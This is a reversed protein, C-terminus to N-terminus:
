QNLNATIMNTALGVDVLPLAATPVDAHPGTGPLCRISQLNMPINEGSILVRLGDDPIAQSNTATVTSTSLPPRSPWSRALQVAQAADPLGFGVNHSVLLGAGNAVLDPDAFNFHRSALILIQQVDRYTLNTDASLMLAAVGAIHPAAASTGSFGFGDFIYGSLDEFPPFYSVVNRGDTGLLDTTFLHFRDVAADTSPGSVLICAGPESFSAARGDKRMAAVAIVRRDSPYADDNANAGDGRRNGASRVMIVGRGGRGHNVANSIGIDELLSLGILELGINGWSYNQVAVVNSQFQYADMLQEDSALVFNTDYLVWSALSAGPAVGAM